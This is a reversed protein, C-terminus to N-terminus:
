LRQNPHKLVDFEKVVRSGGMVMAYSVDDFTRFVM